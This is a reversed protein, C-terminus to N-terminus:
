NLAMCSLAFLVYQVYRCSDMSNGEPTSRVGELSCWEWEKRDIGPLEHFCAEKSNGLKYKATPCCRKSSGVTICPGSKPNSEKAANQENWDDADAGHQNQEHEELMATPNLDEAWSEQIAGKGGSQSGSPWLPARLPFRSGRQAASGATGSSSSLLAGNRTESIHAALALVESSVVLYLIAIGLAFPQSRPMMVKSFGFEVFPSFSYRKLSKPKKHKKVPLM